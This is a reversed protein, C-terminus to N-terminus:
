RCSAMRVASRTPFFNTRERMSSVHITRRLFSVMRKLCTVRRSIGSWRPSVLVPPSAISTMPSCCPINDQHTFYGLTVSNMLRQSSACHFALRALRAMDSVHSTATACGKRRASFLKGSSHGLNSPNGRSSHVQSFHFYWKWSVCSARSRTMQCELGEVSEKPNALAAVFMWPIVCLRSVMCGDTDLLRTWTVGGPAM